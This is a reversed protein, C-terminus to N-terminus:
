CSGLTLNGDCNNLNGCQDADLTISTSRNHYGGHRKCNASVRADDSSVTTFTEDWCSRNASATSDYNQECVDATSPPPPQPTPTGGAMALNATVVALLIVTFFSRYM